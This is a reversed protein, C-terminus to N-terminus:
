NEKKRYISKLTDLYLNLRASRDSCNSGDVYARGIIVNGYRIYVDRTGLFGDAGDFNYEKDDFNVEFRNPFTIGFERLIDQAQQWQKENYRLYVSSPMGRLTLTRLVYGTKLIAMDIDGEYCFKKSIIDYKVYHTLGHAMTVLILFRLPISNFFLFVYIIIHRSKLCM